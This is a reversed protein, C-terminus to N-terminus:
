PYVQFRIPLDFQFGPAPALFLDPDFDIVGRAYGAFQPANVFPPTAGLLRATVNMEYLGPTNAVFGLVDVYTYVGPVLNFGAGAHTVNMNGPGLTWTTLNGAQYRIEYPLAFNSLVDGATTGPAIVLFPNLFMVTAVFAPEGVKIVQHPLLPGGVAIPQIPGLAYLNWWGQPEAIEPRARQMAEDLASKVRAEILAKIDADTTERAPRVIELGPARQPAAAEAAAHRLAHAEARTAAKM